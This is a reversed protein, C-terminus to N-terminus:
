GRRSRTFNVICEAMYDIQEDGLGPFVGIWFTRDMVTDTNTLEGVVRYDHGQMYPQRLLNGAFLNRTAVGHDNLYRV